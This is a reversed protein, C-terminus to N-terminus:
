YRPNLLPSLIERELPPPAHLFVKLLEDICNLIRRKFTLEMPINLDERQSLHKLPGEFLSFSFIFFGIRVFVFWGQPPFASSRSM